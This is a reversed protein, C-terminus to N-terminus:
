GSCRTPAPSPPTSTTPSGAGRRNAPVVLDVLYHVVMDDVCESHGFATHGAGEWRISVADGLAEAMQPALFGPTAPDGDTGIVVIPNPTDVATIPPLPESTEPWGACGRVASPGQRGAFDACYVAVNAETLNDYSNEGRPYGAELFSGLAALTSADGDAADAM